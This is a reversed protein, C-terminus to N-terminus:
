ETKPNEQVNVIGLFASLKAGPLDHQQAWDGAKSKTEEPAAEDNVPVLARTGLTDRHIIATKPPFTNSAELEEERTTDGEPDNPL